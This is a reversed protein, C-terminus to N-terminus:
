ESLLEAGFFVQHENKVILDPHSSTVHLIENATLLFLGSTYLSKMWPQESCTVTDVSSLLHIDHKYDDRISLVTSTLKMMPILCAEGGGEYTIQLYVRYTGKRPVVLSGDSYSFGGKCHANGTKSEWQLYNGDTINDAPALSSFM